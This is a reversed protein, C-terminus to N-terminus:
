ILYIYEMAFTKKREASLLKLNKASWNKSRLINQKQKKNQQIKCEINKNKWFKNSLNRKEKRFNGGFIEGHGFYGCDNFCNWVVIDM